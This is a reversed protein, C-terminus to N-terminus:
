WKLCAWLGFHDSLFHSQVASAPTDLVVKFGGPQAVSFGCWDPWMVRDYRAKYKNKNGDYYLNRTTDWTSEHQAPSGAELWADQLEFKDLVTATESERQM